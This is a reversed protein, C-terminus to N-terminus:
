ATQPPLTAYPLTLTAWRFPNHKGALCDAYWQAILEYCERRRDSTSFRAQCGPILEDYYQHECWEKVSEPVGTHVVVTATCRAPTPTASGDGIGILVSGTLAAALLCVRFINRLM